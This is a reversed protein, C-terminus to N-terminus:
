SDVYEFLEWINFPGYKFVLSPHIFTHTKTM